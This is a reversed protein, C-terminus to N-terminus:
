RPEIILKIATKQEGDIEIDTFAPVCILDLGSPAVFGRAIAISKIAQNLAGAGIAQIEASGKERLVGALAGAVSNPNSKSSVKLVEM